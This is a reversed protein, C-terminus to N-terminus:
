GRDLEKRVATLMRRPDFPKMLCSVGLREMATRKSEDSIYGSMFLVKIAPYREHIIRWAELGGLEPMILDSLILDIRGGNQDCVSIAERGNRAELVLFGRLSLMKFTIHRLTEDDEVLLITETGGAVPAVVHDGLTEEASSSIPLYLLFTTGSGVRSEAKIAGKHQQMIGYVSPLGLGTGKGAEKTTFFPEFIKDLHEPAIGCGTDSVRLLAYEGAALGEVEDAHLMTRGAEISIRGGGPMADRANTALNMFVQEIQGSDVFVPLPSDATHVSLVIDEGILRGILKASVDIIRNLDAEAMSLVQKRSFALLGKTLITARETLALIQQLTTREEDSVRGNMLPLSAFGSMASLINNFDHAIGGALRGVAEMKQSHQLQTQLQVQETSDRLIGETAVYENNANRVMNATIEVHRITGDPRRLRFPYNKVQNKEHLLAIYVSRDHPNDWYDIISRGIVEDPSVHGLIHAFAHNAREIRADSGIRFIGDLSNEFISRFAEESEALRQEARNRAIIKWVDNLFVQIQRVDSEEYPAEKDSVGAVAVIHEGDLVPIGLHRILPFHGDPFAQRGKESAYDNHVAVTRHRIIDAWIGANALPYQTDISVSRDKSVRFSWATLTILETKDDYLHFYGVSSDTFAVIAEAAWEFLEQESAYEMATMQLLAELRTENRRLEDSAKVELSVDMVTGSTGMIRGQEDVLQQAMLRLHKQVGSPLRVSFDARVEREGSMLQDIVQELLETSAAPYTMAAISRFTLPPMYDPVEFIRFLEQSWFVTNSEADVQFSGIHALRQADALLLESKKIRDLVVMRDTIDRMVHVAGELTGDESWLPDATVFFYAAGHRIEATERKGSSFMRRVPCDPHSSDTGHVLEWCYRGTLADGPQGIFDMFARNARVVRMDRDLVCIGDAVADFTASWQRAALMLAQEDQKRATIDESCIVIGERAPQVIVRFWSKKGDPYTFERDVEQTIREDMSKKLVSFLSMGTIGPWCEMITKGIMEERPRMSHRVAADNLYLYRWDFGLIQCGELLTDFQHHSKEESKQLEEAVHRIAALDHLTVFVEEPRGSKQSILPIANISLWVIEQSKANRVGMVTGYVPQGTKLAQMSPHEDPHVKSGDERIVYWDPDYSTRALFEERTLGFLELASRNVDILTGDASQLFVGDVMNEFLSVLKNSDIQAQDPIM